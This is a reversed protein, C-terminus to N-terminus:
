LHCTVRHCFYAADCLYPALKQELTTCLSFHVSGDNFSFLAPTSNGGGGALYGEPHYFRRVARLLFLMEM